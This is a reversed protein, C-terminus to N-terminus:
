KSCGRAACERLSRRVKDKGRSDTRERTNHQTYAALRRPSPPKKIINQQQSEVNLIYEEEIFSPTLVKPKKLRGSEGGGRKV